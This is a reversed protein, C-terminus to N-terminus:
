GLQTSMITKIGSVSSGVISAFLEGRQTARQISYQLKLYNSIDPKKTNQLYDLAGGLTGQAGGLWNTVTDLVSGKTKPATEFKGNTSKAIANMDPNLKEMVKQMAQFHDPTLKNSFTSNQLNEQINNFQSKLQVIQNSLEEKPVPINQRSADGAVEMPSPKQGQLQEPKNGEPGLTFSREGEDEKGLSPQNPGYPQIPQSPTIGPNSIPNDAM